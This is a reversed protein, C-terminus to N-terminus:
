DAIRARVMKFVVALHTGGIMMAPEVVGCLAVWTETIPQSMHEVVIIGVVTGITHAIM